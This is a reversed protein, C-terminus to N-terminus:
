RVCGAAASEDLAEASPRALPRQGPHCSQGGADACGPGPARTPPAVAATAAPRRRRRGPGLGRLLTLLDLHARRPRPSGPAQHRRVPRRNCRMKRDPRLGQCDELLARRLARYASGSCPGRDVGPRDPLGGSGAGLLEPDSCGELSSGSPSACAPGPSRAGRPRAAVRTGALRQRPGGRPEGGSAPLAILGLGLLPEVLRRCCPCPCPWMSSVSRGAGRPKPAGPGGHGPAHGAPRGQPGRDPDRARAQAAQRALDLGAYSM